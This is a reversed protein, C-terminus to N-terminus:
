EPQLPVPRYLDADWRASSYDRDTKQAFVAADPLLVNCSFAVILVRCIFRKM